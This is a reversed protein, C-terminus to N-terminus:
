VCRDADQFHGAFPLKIGVIKGKQFLNGVLKREAQLINAEIILKPLMFLFPLDSKRSYGIKEDKDVLIFFNLQRKYVDEIDRGRPDIDGVKMGEWVELGPYLLGRLLGDIEARLPVTGIMAIIDGKRVLDGM